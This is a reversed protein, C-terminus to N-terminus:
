LISEGRQQLLLENQKIGAIDKHMLEESYANRLFDVFLTATKEELVGEMKLFDWVTQEVDYAVRFHTIKGNEYISYGARPDKDRHQGVPRICRYTKGNIERDIQYHYHGFWIEEIGEGQLHAFAQAMELNPTNPLIDYSVEYSGHVALIRSDLCYRDLFTSMWQLQSASLREKAWQEWKHPPALSLIAEDHNGMICIPDLQRLTEVCEAPHPGFNALDGLFLVKDYKGAAHALVAKLAPFNAHIDALILYRM